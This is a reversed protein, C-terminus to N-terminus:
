WGPEEDRRDHNAEGRERETGAANAERIDVKEMDVRLDEDTALLNKAWPVMGTAYKVVFRRDQGDAEWLQRERTWGLEVHERIDEVPWQGKFTGERVRGENATHSPTDLDVPGEEGFKRTRRRDYPPGRGADAAREWTTECSRAIAGASAWGTRRDIELLRSILWDRQAPDRYQIGAFFLSLTSENLAAGLSPTLSTSPIQMGATIRGILIAYPQTAPACVGAAVMAAPPMAPHSRLLLINSLHVLTWLISVAYSRHMLAPGFPTTNGGPIPPYLDPALPAFAESNALFRAVTAHAHSISNWDALAAEYAVPLDSFKPVPMDPTLPSNDHPNHNPNAYSAPLPALSRTPAMGYFSPM